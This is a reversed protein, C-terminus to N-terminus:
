AASPPRLLCFSGGCRLNDRGRHSGGSTAGTSVDSATEAAAISASSEGAQMLVERPQTGRPLLGGLFEKFGCWDDRCFGQSGGSLFCGSVVAAGVSGTAGPVPLAGEPSSSVFFSLLAQFPSFSFRWQRVQALVPFFFCGCGTAAGRSRRFRSM